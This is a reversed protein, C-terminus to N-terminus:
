QTTTGARAKAETAGAAAAAAPTGGRGAPKTAAFVWANAGVIGHHGKHMHLSTTNFGLLCVKDVMERGFITFLLAGKNHIPDHSYIPVEAHHVLRGEEVSARVDDHMDIQLASPRPLACPRSTLGPPLLAPGLTPPFLPPWALLPWSGWRMAATATAAAGRGDLESSARQECQGSSCLLLQAAFQHQQIAVAPAPPAAPAATAAATSQQQWWQREWSARVPSFPVTFVHSGGPKLVRFLEHHAQYPMPIHVFVQLLLLLM